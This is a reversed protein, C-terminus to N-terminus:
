TIRPRQYKRWWDRIRWFLYMVGAFLELWLRQVSSWAISFRLLISQRQTAHSIDNSSHGLEEADEWKKTFSKYGRTGYASLLNKFSGLPNIKSYLVGLKNRYPHSKDNVYKAEQVWNEKEDQESVESGIQVTHKSAANRLMLNDSQEFASMDLSIYEGPKQEVIENNFSSSSSPDLFMTMVSRDEVNHHPVNQVSKGGSLFMAFGDRDQEDLDVWQNRLSSTDSLSNCVQTIQAVIAAIFQKHRSIAIQKRQSKELTAAAMAVEREFDELQWKVTELSTALQCKHNNLSALLRHDPNRTEQVLSQEHLLVRYVSEMRDASDQVVEAASFLPDSKWDQYGPASSPM